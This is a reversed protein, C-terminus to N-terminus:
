EIAKLSEARQKVNNASVKIDSTMKDMDANLKNMNSVAIINGKLILSYSSVLDAKKSEVYSLKM